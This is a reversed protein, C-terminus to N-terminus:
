RTICLNYTSVKNVDYPRPLLSLSETWFEVSSGAPIDINGKRVGQPTSIPIFGEQVDLLTGDAAFIGAYIKIVEAKEGNNKVTGLIKYSPYGGPQEFEGKHSVIKVKLEKTEPQVPGGKVEPEVSATLKESDYTQVFAYCKEGPAFIVNEVDWYSSYRGITTGDARKFTAYPSIWELNHPKNNKYEFFAIVQGGTWYWNIKTVELKAIFSRETPYDDENDPVGDDDTDVIKSKVEEKPKEEIKLQHYFYTTGIGLLIIGAVILAIIIPALGLQSKFVKSM